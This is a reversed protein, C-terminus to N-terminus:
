HQQVVSGATVETNLIGIMFVKQQSVNYAVFKISNTPSKGTQFTYQNGGLTGDGNITVNVMIPDNPIVPTGTSGLAVIDIVGNNPQGAPLPFVYQGLVDIQFPINSPNFNFGSWQVAFNTATTVPTFPGPSEIELPGDAITSVSTDQIFGQSGSYLYFVFPYVFNNQSATFTLPGRGSGPFNGDIAYSRATPNSVTGNGGGDNFDLFVNQLNQSGDATFRAVEALPGGTDTGGQLFVFSNNFAASMTPVGASQQFADGSTVIGADTSLLKLHTADVIYFIFNFTGLNTTPISLTGRGFNTGNSNADLTITGV